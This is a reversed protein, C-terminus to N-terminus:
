YNIEKKFFYEQNQYQWDVEVNWRGSVLKNKPILFKSDKLILQIEQDLQKNSPRYLFVKGDISSSKLDKPFQLEIGEASHKLSINEALNKANNERDLRNQFELEKKYYEETVLDHEFDKDSSITIVFYLIFGMFAVIALAIGTGWNMKM